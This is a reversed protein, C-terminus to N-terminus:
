ESISVAIYPLLGANLNVIAKHYEARWAIQTQITFYTGLGAMLHWIAHFYVWSPLYRCAFLDWLWFFFGGFYGLFSYFFLRRPLSTFRHRSSPSYLSISMLVVFSVLASSYGLFFVMFLNPICFYITTIVMTGIILSTKLAIRHHFWDNSVHNTTGNTGNKHAAKYPFGTKYDIANYLLAVAAFVMPLEDLSQAWRRLTAHFATSGFGVLMLLFFCFNFRAENLGYKKSYYWGIIGYIAIPISSLSNMLEAIYTTFEYNGECWDMNADVFGWYPVVIKEHM